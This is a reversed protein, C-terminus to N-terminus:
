SPGLVDRGVRGLIVMATEVVAEIPAAYDSRVWGLAIQVVAGILGDALLDIDIGQGRLDEVVDPAFRLIGLSVGRITDWYLKDMAPSVGLIEVLFVRAQNPNERLLAYYTHLATRVLRAMDIPAPLAAIATMVEGTLQAMVELYAAALLAEGKDFSEYFYRETLGAEACIARVTAHHYGVAGYVAIAAEILKQRREAKREETSAGRYTRRKEITETM